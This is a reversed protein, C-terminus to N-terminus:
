CVLVFYCCCEGAKTKLGQIRTVSGSVLLASALFCDWFSHITKWGDIKLHLSNTEPLIGKWVFHVNRWKEAGKTPNAPFIFSYKYGGVLFGVFMKKWLEKQKAWTSQTHLWHLRSMVLHKSSRPKSPTLKDHPM